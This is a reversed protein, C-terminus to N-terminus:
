SYAVLKFSACSLGPTLRAAKVPDRGKARRPSEQEFGGEQFQAIAGTGWLFM